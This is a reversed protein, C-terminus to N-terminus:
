LHRAIPSFSLMSFADDAARFPSERWSLWRRLPSVELVLRDGVFLEPPWLRLRDPLM